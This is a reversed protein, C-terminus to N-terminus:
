LASGDIRLIQIESFMRLEGCPSDYPVVRLHVLTECFADILAQVVIKEPGNRATCELTEVGHMVGARRMAKVAGSNASVLLEQIRASTGSGRLDRLRDSAVSDFPCGYTYITPRDIHMKQVEFFLSLFCSLEHWKVDNYSLEEVDYIIPNCAISVFSFVVTNMARPVCTRVYALKQADPGIPLLTIGSLHLDTLNPLQTLFFCLVYLDLKVETFGGDELAIHGRCGIQLHTIPSTFINNSPSSLFALFGTLYSQYFLPITDRYLHVRAPYLWEKSVLACSALTPRDLQLYDLVAFVLDVPM